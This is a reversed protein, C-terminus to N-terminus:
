PLRQLAKQALEKSLDLAVEGDESDVSIELSLQYIGQLVNLSGFIGDWCADEGLSNVPQAEGANNKAMEFIDRAQAEAGAFYETESGVFVCITAVSIIPTEPDGRSEVPDTM